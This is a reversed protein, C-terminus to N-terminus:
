LSNKGYKGNSKPLPLQIVSVGPIGTPVMAGQMAAIFPLTNQAPLPQGIPSINSDTVSGTNRQAGLAGSTGGIGAPIATGTTPSYACSNAPAPCDTSASPQVIANIFFAYSGAPPVLQITYIYNGNSDFVDRFCIQCNPGCGDCVEPNSLNAFPDVTLEATEHSLALAYVDAQDDVTLNTGQVNVFIYPIGNQSINHYGLYGKSADADTNTVDSSEVLFVLADSVGDQKLGYQQAITDAWGLTSSNPAGGITQDNFSKQDGSSRLDVAFTIPNPNSAIKAPGYQSCYQAVPVICKRHFQQATALDADSISKVGSGTTLLLKVFTINGAFVPGFNQGTQVDPVTNGSADTHFFGAGIGNVPEIQNLVSGPIISAYGNAPETPPIIFAPNFGGFGASSLGLFSGLPSNNATNLLNYKSQIFKANKILRTACAYKSAGTAGASTNIGGIPPPSPPPSPPPTPGGGGGGGGGGSVPKFTVVVAAWTDTSGLSATLVSGGNSLKWGAAGYPGFSTAAQFISLGNTGNISSTATDFIVSMIAVENGSSTSPTQANVATSIANSVSGVFDLATNPGGSDVAAVIIQSKTPNTFAATVILSNSASIPQQRVWIECTGSAANFMIARTYAGGENDTVNAVTLGGSSPYFVSAYVANGANGVIPPANIISQSTGVAAQASSVIGAM